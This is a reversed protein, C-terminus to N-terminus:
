GECTILVESTIGLESELWGMVAEMKADQRELELLLEDMPVDALIAVDHLIRSYSVQVKMSNELHITFMM